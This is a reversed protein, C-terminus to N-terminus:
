WYSKVVRALIDIGKRLDQESQVYNMRICSEAHAGPDVQGPFFYRGPVVLLGQQKLEEYLRSTSISLGDFWLWLFIAGEPLHIQLRNDNVASKLWNIALECRAQYFPRIVEDCLSTLLQKRLLANVIVPGVGGPALSTIATMNSLQRIVEENAIVIGTRVGPLGLKSLSLCVITNENWFPTVQNFIIHPFPTGYASDVLLPVDHRRALRDLHSCEQDTLVNGSPNTPRSVCILGTDATVELDSFNIHYKFFQEPLMEISPMQSVFLDEEIGVDSYGIYEPTIPLLVHKRTGNSRGAFSNFLAFFASQSGHTLAINKRSIGWGYHRNFYEALSDLFALKGQSSDYNVVANILEGNDLLEQTTQELVQLVQPIAAPNGGGLMIMDEKLLGESLDDMLHTIGSYRSFRQGFDSFNM